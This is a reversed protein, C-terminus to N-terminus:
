VRPAYSSSSMSQYHDSDEYGKEVEIEVRDKRPHDEGPDPHRGHMGQAPDLHEQVPDDIGDDKGDSPDDGRYSEAGPREVQRRDDQQNSDLDEYAEDPTKGSRAWPIM